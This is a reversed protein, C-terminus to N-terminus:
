APEEPGSLQKRLNLMDCVATIASIKGNTLRFIAIVPWTAERGTPAIGFLEGGHVGRETFLAVVQDGEAVLTEITKHQIPFFTHWERAWGNAGEPGGLAHGNLIFDPAIFEASTAYNKQNWIEEIYRRVVAKNETISM